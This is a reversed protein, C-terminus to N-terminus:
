EGLIEESYQWEGLTLIEGVFGPGAFPFAFTLLYINLFIQSQLM